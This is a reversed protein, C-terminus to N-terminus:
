LVRKRKKRLVGTKLNQLFVIKSLLECSIITAKSGNPTKLNQLFVIKSLLECCLYDPM